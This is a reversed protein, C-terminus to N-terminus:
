SATRSHLKRVLATRVQLLESEFTEWYEGNYFEITKWAECNVPQFSGRWRSPDAGRELAAQSLDGAVSADMGSLSKLEEWHHPASCEEVGIRCLLIGRELMAKMDLVQPIDSHNPFWLKEATPEWFEETSFWAIALETAPVGKTACHIHGDGVISHLSYITTYHWLM